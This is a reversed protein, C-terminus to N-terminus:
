RVVSSFERVLDAGVRRLSVEMESAIHKAVTEPQGNSNVVMSLEIRPSFQEGGAAGPKEWPYHTAYFNGPDANYKAQAAPDMLNKFFDVTHGIADGIGRQASEPMLKYALTGLGYGIAGWAAVGFAAGALTWAGAGEAAGPVALGGAAKALGAGLNLIGTVLGTAGLLKLALTLALIKSSWGDTVRDLKAFQEYVWELMPRVTVYAKQLDKFMSGLRNQIEDGHTDLWDLLRGMGAILWDFAITLDKIAQAGHDRLLRSFSTMLRQLAAMAPGEFGLMMQEFQMKLDQLQVEFRHAAEAVRQWGAARKEQRASEDAFGPSSIALMTRESIGLMGALQNAQFTRGQERMIAFMRGIQGMLATGTLMQGNANKASLGVSGLWGAVVNAGGPNNRLFAALGEVSGQAEEISAGFNRAALDFAKLSSASSNTRQAAFYLAELNSAFRAVGYAVALATAEIRVGLNEVAKTVSVVGDKLKKAATEDHKYGLAVLFEKIVTSEAM